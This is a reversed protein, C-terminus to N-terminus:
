RKNQEQERIYNLEGEAFQKCLPDNMLEKTLLTKAEEFREAEILVYAKRRKLFAMHYKWAEIDAKEEPKPSDALFREIYSLAQPDKSNTLFNVYEQIHQYQESYSALELYYAAANIKKMEMLCFGIRCSAEFLIEWLLEDESEYAVGSQSKMKNSTCEFVWKALKYVEFYRREEMLDIAKRIAALLSDNDTGYALNEHVGLCITFCLPTNLEVFERKDDNDAFNSRAIDVRMVASTENGNISHTSIVLPAHNCLLSKDENGESKYYVHNCSLIFVRDRESSSNILYNVITDAEEIRKEFKGNNTDYVFMCPEINKTNLGMLTKLIYGITITSDYKPHEALWKDTQDKYIKLAVPIDVSFQKVEEPWNEDKGYKQAVSLLQNQMMNNATPNGLKACSLALYNPKDLSNGPAGQKFYYVAEDERGMMSLSQGMSNCIDYYVSMLNKNRGDLPKMRIFNFARELISFADYYRKKEFLWQGYGIYQHGQFELQGHVYEQELEDLEQNAAQKQAVRKELLDYKEYKPNNEIESYTIIFSISVPANETKLSRGDDEAQNDPILMSVRMYKITNIGGLSTLMMIYRRSRCNVVITTEHFMGQSYHGDVKRKLICSFLDFNWIASKDTIISESPETAFGAMRYAVAMSQVSSEEEKAVESLVEGLTLRNGETARRLVIAQHRYASEQHIFSKDMMLEFNYNKQEDTLPRDQTPHNTYSGTFVKEPEETKGFLSKIIRKIMIHM